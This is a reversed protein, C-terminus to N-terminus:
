LLLDNVCVSYVFLSLYLPCRGAMGGFMGLGQANAAPLNGVSCTVACQCQGNQLTGTGTSTTGGTGAGAAPASSPQAAPPAAAPPAAAPPAAASGNGAAAGGGTIASGAGTGNQAIAMSQFMAQTKAATPNISFTMGKGCHGKQRCYFGIHTYIRTLWSDENRSFHIM